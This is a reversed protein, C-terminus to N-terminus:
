KLLQRREIKTVFSLCSFGAYITYFLIIECVHDADRFVLQWLTLLINLTVILRNISSILSRCEWFERCVAVGSFFPRLM